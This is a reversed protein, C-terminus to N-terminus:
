LANRVIPHKRVCLCVVCFESIVFLVPGLLASLPASIMRHEPYQTVGAGLDCVYAPCLPASPRMPAHGTASLLVFRHRQASPRMPAHSTASFLIFRQTASFSDRACGIRETCRQRDTFRQIRQQRTHAFRLAACSETRKTAVSAHRM